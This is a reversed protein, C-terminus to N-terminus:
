EIFIYRRHWDLFDSCPTLEASAPVFLKEGGHLSRSALQSGPQSLTSSTLVRYVPGQRVITFGGMLFASALHSSLAIGNNVTLPAGTEPWRIPVATLGSLTACLTAGFRTIACANGYASLVDQRFQLIRTPRLGFYDRIDAHLQYPIYKSLLIEVAQEVLCSNTRLAHYNQESFGGRANKRRLEAVTPDTNGGRAKLPSDSIVQWIGESQLRWFAYAPNPSRKNLSFHLLATRHMGEMDTFLQLRSRGALVDGIAQLLLLPKNLAVGGPGRHVNLDAIRDIV